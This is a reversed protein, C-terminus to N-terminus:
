LLYFPSLSTQCASQSSVALRYSLQSGSGSCKGGDVSFFGDEKQPGGLVSIPSSPVFFDLGTNVRSNIRRTGLFEVYNERLWVQNGTVLCEARESWLFGPLANSKGERPIEWVRCSGM